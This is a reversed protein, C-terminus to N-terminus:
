LYFIKTVTDISKDKELRAITKGLWKLQNDMIYGHVNGSTYKITSEDPAYWYNSNLVVMAVNDFTYYFVTEDYPPFDTTNPDPDYKAGDESKLESVPNVFMKSFVAEASETNFPFKDIGIGWPNGYPFSYNLAEHNGMGAIFPIRHAFPEIARKFNQYQLRSYQKDTVYGSILDGTFQVFRADRDLALAAIKKVIYVNSGHLNREGGGNGSRSDSAFAFVFSERTGPAPPTEFWSSWHYDGVNVTYNVRTGPELNKLQIEHHASSVNDTFLQDNASVTVEEDFNLTLAIVASTPQLLCLYPGDIVTVDTEFPGTGKMRVRSDYIIKGESSLIRYGILAKGSQEWGTFDYKGSV